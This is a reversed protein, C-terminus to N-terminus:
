NRLVPRVHQMGNSNKGKKELLSTLPKVTKSFGEIFRRYYGALGLFSRIESVNKPPNWNMIDHVKSPDVAIGGDSIVHGLYFVERLWFDCKSLKAYM